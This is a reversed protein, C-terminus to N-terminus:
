FLDIAGATDAGPDQPKAAGTRLRERVDELFVGQLIGSIDLSEGPDVPESLGKLATRVCQLSQTLTDASQLVLRTEATSDALELTHIGSQLGMSMDVLLDLEHVLRRMCIQPDIAPPDPEAAAANRAM